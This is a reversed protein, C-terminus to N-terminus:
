ITVITACFFYYRILLMKKKTGNAEIIANAKAHNKKLDMIFFESPVARM